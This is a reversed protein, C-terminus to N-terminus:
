IVHAAFLGTEDTFGEFRNGEGVGKATGQFARHV